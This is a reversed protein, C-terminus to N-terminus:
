KLTPFLLCPPSLFLSIVSMDCFVCFRPYRELFFGSIQYWCPSFFWASYIVTSSFYPPLTDRLGFICVLKPDLPRPLACLPSIASRYYEPIRFPCKSFVVFPSLSCFRDPPYPTGYSDTPPTVRPFLFYSSVCVQFLFPSSCCRCELVESPYLCFPQVPIAHPSVFSRPLSTSSSPGSM